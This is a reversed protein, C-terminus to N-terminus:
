KIRRFKLRFRRIRGLPALVAMGATSAFLSSAGGLAALGGLILLAPLAYKTMGVTQANKLTITVIHPTTSSPTPTPTSGASSSPSSSPSKSSTPSRSSSPHKKSPGSNGAQDLVLQAAHLTQARLKAPLPLYGPPLEGVNLGRRQGPGAVYDLFRAIADAKKKSVGKTPVMAYIVMTLPYADPKQKAFDVRETIGNTGSPVMTALAAAMSKPTPAVYHGSGNLIQAAPFGLDAADGDDVIAFLARAGTVEPSDKDYNQTQDNIQYSTGNDANEAQLAVVASLPFDPSFKHSIILYSDQATFADQPWNVGLYNTNVHMGWQDAQGHMFANADQNAMIWSTVEWTMDSHGSMVTPVQFGELSGEPPLIHPNLQKFEPDAFLSTPNGDVANDCGNGGTPPPRGIPCGENVFDYSQTLLKAVLRPDFKLNTVPQFTKPSDVWYAIAVSSVSLPAFTYTLKGVQTPGPRTTLAIDGLTGLDQIAAPETIDPNYTVTVPDSGVCLAGLWQQMALNLMPSGLATFDPNRVACFKPARVFSLPIVIRDAWTCSDYTGGFDETANAYYPDLSHASCNMHPYGYGGQAPVVVISCRHHIGCGLLQNQEAVLLEIEVAGTGQQTTAAYETNTPGYANVEPEGADTSGYCQRWYKVKVTNCEAVMVPYISQGQSYVGLVAPESPTFNKWSVKVFQNTLNTTQSVTVSSRAKLRGGTAPNYLRKGFVTTGTRKHTGGRKLSKAPKPSHSPGAQGSITSASGPGAPLLTVGAIVASIGLLALALSRMRTTSVKM